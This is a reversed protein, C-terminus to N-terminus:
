DVIQRQTVKQTGTFVPCDPLPPTPQITLYGILRSLDSLDITGQNDINAEERCPLKPTPQITLYGILMALDTLDVLGSMSVNGTTGTCCRVPTYNFVMTAMNEAKDLVQIMYVSSDSAASWLSGFLVPWVLSDEPALISTDRYLYAVKFNLDWVTGYLYVTDKLILEPPLIDRVFNFEEREGSNGQLDTFEIRLKYLGDATADGQENRGDWFLRHAENGSVSQGNALVKILSNGADLVRATVICQKSLNFDIWCTDKLGDGNPSFCVNGVVPNSFEPPSNDVLLSIQMSDSLCGLGNTVLLLTHEGSLLNATSWRCLINSTIANHFVSLTDWLTPSSGSGHLLLGSVFGEGDTSGVIDVEGGVTAGAVPSTIEALPTSLTADVRMVPLRFPSTNGEYYTAYVDPGFNHKTTASVISRETSNSVNGICPSWSDGGDVSTRHVIEFNGSKADSWLVFLKGSANQTIDPSHSAIGDTQSINKRSSWGSSTRKRFYIEGDNPDTYVLSLGSAHHLLKNVGSGADGFSGTGSEIEQPSSWTSVRSSYFLRRSNDDYLSYWVVQPVNGADTEIAGWIASADLNAEITEAGAFGGLTGKRYALHGRGGTSLFFKWIMHVQNLNDVTIQPHEVVGHNAPSVLERSWTGNRREAYWIGKQDGSRISYAVRLINDTGMCASSYNALTGVSNIQELPGWAVGNTSSYSYSVVGNGQDFVLHLLGNTDRCLNSRRDTNAVTTSLKGYAAVVEFCVEPGWNGVQDRARACVRHIGDTWSCDSYDLSYYRTKGGDENGTEIPALPGYGDVYVEANTILHSPLGNCQGDIATFTIHMPTCSAFLVSPQVSLNFIEPGCNDPNAICGQQSSLPSPSLTTVVYPGADFSNTDLNAGYCTSGTSNANQAIRYTVLFHRRGSGIALGGTQFPFRSNVGLDVASILPEGSDVICNSNFDEYLSAYAIDSPSTANGTLEVRITSVALPGGSTYLDFALATINNNPWGNQSQLCRGVVNLVTSARPVGFNYDSFESERGGSNFATIRYYYSQGNILGVDCFESLGPSTSTLLQYPGGSNGSRYIRYGAIDQELNPTWDLCLRQDSATIKPPTPETPSIANVSVSYTRTISGYGSKSFVATFTHIGQTLPTSNFRYRGTGTKEIAISQSPNPFAASVSAIDVYAGNQDTVEIGLLLRDGIRYIGGASDAISAELYNGSLSTTFTTDIAASALLSVAEIVVPFTEALPLSSSRVRLQFQRRQGPTFGLTVLPMQESAVLEGGDTYLSGSWGEKSDPLIMAINLIDSCNGTNTIGFDYLASDGQAITLRTEGPPPLFARNTRAYATFTLSNTSFAHRLPNDIRYSYTKGKLANSVVFQRVDSHGELLGKIPAAIIGALIGNKFEQQKFILHPHQVVLHPNKEKFKFFNHLVKFEENYVNWNKQDALTYVGWSALSSAKTDLFAPVGNMVIQDDVASVFTPLIWDSGLDQTGGKWEHAISEISLDDPSLLTDEYTNNLPTITFGDPGSVMVQVDMGSPGMYTLNLRGSEGIGLGVTQTFNNMVLPDFDRDWTVVGESYSFASYQEAMQRKAVLANTADFTTVAYTMNLPGQCNVADTGCSPRTILFYYDKVKPSDIVFYRLDYEAGGNVNDALVSAGTALATVAASTPAAIPFVANAVVQGMLNSFLETAYNEGIAGITSNLNGRHFTASAGAEADYNVQFNTPGMFVILVSKATFKNQFRFTIRSDYWNGNALPMVRVAPSSTESKVFLREGRYPGLTYRPPSSSWDWTGAIGTDVVMEESNSAESGEAPATYAFLQLLLTVIVSTLTRRHTASM